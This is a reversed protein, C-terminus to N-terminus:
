TIMQSGRNDYDSHLYYNHLVKQLKALAELFTNERMRRTFTLLECFCLIEYSAIKIHGHSEIFGHFFGEVSGWSSFESSYCPLVSTIM